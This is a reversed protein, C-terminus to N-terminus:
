SWGQESTNHPSACNCDQDDPHSAYDGVNRCKGAQGGWQKYEAIPPRTRYQGDMELHKADRTRLIVAIGNVGRVFKERSDGADM